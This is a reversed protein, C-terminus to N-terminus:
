VREDCQGVVVWRVPTNKVGMIERAASGDAAAVVVSGVGSGLQDIAVQPEGDDGGDLLLPQIVLLRWRNLTPHKITATTRGIVQALQM